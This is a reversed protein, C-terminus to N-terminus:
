RGFRDTQHVWLSLVGRGVVSRRRRICCLRVRGRTAPVPPQQAYRPRKLLQRPRRISRFRSRSQQQHQQQYRQPTRRQADSGGLAPRETQLAERQRAVRQLPRLALATVGDCWRRRPRTGQASWISVAAPSRARAREQPKDVCANRNRPPARRAARLSFACM